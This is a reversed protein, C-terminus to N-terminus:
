CSFKIGIDPPPPVSKLCGFPEIGADSYRAASQHVLDACYLGVQDVRCQYDFFKLSKGYPLQPGDGNVFPGPDGHLGGVSLSTGDFDVWGGAWHTQADAPRPPPNKLDVMCMLEESYSVMTSCRTKGSPTIFAVDDGLQTETGDRTATHYAAVDVAEGAAIWALVDAIPAGPAPPNAPAPATSSSTPHPSSSIPTLKTPESQGGVTDSCGAVLLLASAIAAWYRM